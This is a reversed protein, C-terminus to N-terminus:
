QTTSGNESDWVYANNQAIYYIKSGDASYRPNSESGLTNTIQTKTKTALNYTFLDGNMSYLIATRDNNYSHFPSILDMQTEISVQMTDTGNMDTKYLSSSLANYPNWNFYIDQSNIDWYPNSPQQGIFENGKMIDELKLSSQNQASISLTLLIALLTIQFKM